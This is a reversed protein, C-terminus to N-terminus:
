RNGGPRRAPRTTASRPESQLCSQRIQDARGLAVVRWGAAVRRLLAYRKLGRYDRFEYLAELRSPVCPLARDPAPLLERLSPAVRKAFVEADVPHPALRDLPVLALVVGLRREASDLDACVFPGVHCGPADWAISAVVAAVAARRYLADLLASALAKPSEGDLPAASEGLLREVVAIDAAEEPSAEPAAEVASATPSAGAGEGAAPPNTPAAFHHTRLFWAATGGAVAAACVFALAALVSRQTGRGSPRALPESPVVPAEGRSDM